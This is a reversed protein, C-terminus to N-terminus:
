IKVWPQYSVSFWYAPTLVEPEEVYLPRVVLLWVVAKDFAPITRRLLLLWTPMDEGVQEFEKVVHSSVSLFLWKATGVAALRKSLFYVHAPM